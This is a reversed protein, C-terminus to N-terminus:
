EFHYRQNRVLLWIAIVITAAAIIATIWFVALVSAASNSIVFSSVLPGVFYTLSAMFSYYSTLKGNGTPFYSTLISLGVQWIGGAAFFGIAVSGIRATTLSPVLIMMFLTLAAVTGYISILLLHKVKTVLAATVFVSIMSAMAYFSVLTKAQEPSVKLVSTGFNPLYQSFVYFTFCITFGMAILLAGDIAMSPQATTVTEEIHEAEQIEKLQGQKDQSAFQVKCVFLIDLVLFVSLSLATILANTVTSVWFPFLFQALSMFAKVLSNMTASRTPFADTLAPYCSTDGFSNTFGFFIAAIAAVIMNHALAAGLLFIVDSVMSILMTKRRGIKDSVSGALFITLLRGLGVAALVLSIGKVNTHWASQFYTSYQSIFITAMGVIAYNVYVATAVGAYSQKKM